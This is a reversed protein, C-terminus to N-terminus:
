YVCDLRIVEGCTCRITVKEVHDGIRQVDLVPTRQLTEDPFSALPDGDLNEATALEPLQIPRLRPLPRLSEREALLGALEEDSAGVRLAETLDAEWLDPPLGPRRAPSAPPPADGPQVMTPPRGPSTTAPSSTPASGLDRISFSYLDFPVFELQTGPDNM